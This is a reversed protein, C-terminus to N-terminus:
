GAQSRLAARGLRPSGFCRQTVFRPYSNFGLSSPPEKLGSLRMLWDYVPWLSATIIVAWVVPALFDRAIWFALLALGTALVGRAYVRSRSDPALPAEKVANM